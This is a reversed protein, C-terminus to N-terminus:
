DREKKINVFKISDIVRWARDDDYINVNEVYAFQYFIENETDIFYYHYGKAEDNAVEFIVEFRDEELRTEFYGDDVYPVSSKEVWKEKTMYVADNIIGDYYDSPRARLEYRWIREPDAYLFTTDSSGYINGLTHPGEWYFDMVQGSAFEIHSVNHRWKTDNEDTIKKTYGNASIEDSFEIIREIPGNPPLTEISVVIKLQPTYTIRYRAANEENWHTNQWEDYPNASDLEFDIYDPVYIKNWSVGDGIAKYSIFRCYPGDIFGWLSDSEYNKPHLYVEATEIKGAEIFEIEDAFLKLKEVPKEDTIYVYDLFLVFAMCIMVIQVTQSKVSSRGSITFKEFPLAKNTFVFVIAYISFATVLGTAVFMLFLVLCGWGCYGALLYEPSMANEIFKMQTWPNIGILMLLLAVILSVFVMVAPRYCQWQLKLNEKSNLNEMDDKRRIFSWTRDM